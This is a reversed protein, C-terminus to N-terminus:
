IETTKIDNYLIDETTKKDRELQAVLAERSDFRQEARLRRVFEVTMSQGYLNGVTKMIHVEM